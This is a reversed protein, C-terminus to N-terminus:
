NHINVTFYTIVIVPKNTRYVYYNYPGTLAANALRIIVKKGLGWFKKTKSQIRSQCKEVQFYCKVSLTDMVASTNVVCVPTNASNIGYHSSFV